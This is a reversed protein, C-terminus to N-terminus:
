ETLTEPVGRAGGAGPIVLLNSYAATGNPSIVAVQGHALQFGAVIIIYGDFSTNAPQGAATLLTNMSAAFIGGAALQGTSDLGRTGTINGVGGSTSDTNLVFPTGNTPFFYFKIGGKNTVTNSFAAGHASTNSVVIGTQYGFLNTAYPILMATLNSQICFWPPANTGTCATGTLFVNRTAAGGTTVGNTSLYRPIAAAQVDDDTSGSSEAPSMFVHLTVPGAGSTAAIQVGVQSTAAASGCTPLPSAGCVPAVGNPTSTNATVVPMSANAGTDGKSTDYIAFCPASPGSCTPTNRLAMILSATGNNNSTSLTTPWTVTVGSPLSTGVDYVVSTANTALDNAVQSVCTDATATASNCTGGAVRLAGPFGAAEGWTVTVQTGLGTGSNQTGIGGGAPSMVSAGFTNTSVGVVNGGAATFPGTMAGNANTVNVLVNGATAIATADVRLNKIRFASGKVTACAAVAPSVNCSGAVVTGAQLVSVTIVTQPTGGPALGVTSAASIVLGNPAATDYVDFNATTAASVSAPNTLSANYTLRVTNNTTFCTYGAQGDEWVLVDAVRETRGERNLLPNTAPAAYFIQGAAQAQNPVQPDQPVTPPTAVAAGYAVKSIVAAACNAFASAPVMAVVVAVVLITILRKQM